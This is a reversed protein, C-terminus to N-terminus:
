FVPSLAPSPMVDTLELEARNIGLSRDPDFGTVCPPFAIFVLAAFRVESPLRFGRGRLAADRVFDDRVLDDLEFVDARDDRLREFDALPLLAFFYLAPAPFLTAFTICSIFSPFSLDPREPLFTVLRFCAIAIPRESARM